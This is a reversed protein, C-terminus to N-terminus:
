KRILGEVKRLLDSTEKFTVIRDPKFSKMAELSLSEKCFVYFPTESVSVHQLVQQSIERPSFIHEDEWFQCFVAVPRMNKILLVANAENLATFVEFHLGGLFSRVKSVLLDEVGALVIRKLQKARAQVGGVLAEIRSMLVEFDFPKQMFEVGHMDAFFDKMGGKSSLVIVPINKTGPDQRIKQLAEFGSMVPMMVDMIIVLPKESKAKAVAEEGNKASSVEFGATRLRISLIEIIDPEDDVVLIKKELM